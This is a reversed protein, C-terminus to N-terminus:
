QQGLTLSNAYLALESAQMVASGMHQVIAVINMRFCYVARVCACVVSSGTMHHPSFLM